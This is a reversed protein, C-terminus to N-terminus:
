FAGRYFALRKAQPAFLSELRTREDDSLPGLHAAQVLGQVEAPSSCGVIVLDVGTGYLAYRLLHEAPVGNQPQVYHGGGLCKMGIVAMEKKRAERVVTDLFGGLLTEAPNAPLLVSDLPWNEVCTRLVQPDHHGTVGLHKVVGEDRARVFASLAGDRAEMRRIDEMTRVDHIQWLDLTETHLTKLLDELDKWAHSFTRGASKSTHFIAERAEPREKWVSGLYAQSGAYAPATDFYSIGESLAEQIVALAESERGTTRLIGEGGLGVRTIRPGQQKFHTEPLRPM